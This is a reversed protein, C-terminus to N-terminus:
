INTAGEKELRDILALVEKYVKIDKQAYFALAPDKDVMTFHQYSDEANALKDKFVQRLEQISISLGWRESIKNIRWYVLYHLTDTCVFGNWM